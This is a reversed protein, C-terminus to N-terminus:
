LKYKAEGIEDVPTIGLLELDGGEYWDDNFDYGYETRVAVVRDEDLVGTRIDVILDCIVKHDSAWRNLELELHTYPSYHKNSIDIKM